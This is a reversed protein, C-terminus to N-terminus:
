KETCIKYGVFNNPNMKRQSGQVSCLKINLITNTELFEPYYSDLVFCHMLGVSKLKAFLAISEDFVLYAALGIHVLQPAPISFRMYQLKHSSTYLKRRYTALTSDIYNVM